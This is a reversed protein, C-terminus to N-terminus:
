SELLLASGDELFLAGNEALVRAKARLEAVTLNLCQSLFVELVRIEAKTLEDTSIDLPENSEGLVDARLVEPRSFLSDYLLLQLQEMGMNPMEDTDWSLRVDMTRHGM